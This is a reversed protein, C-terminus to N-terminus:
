TSGGSARTYYPRLWLERVLLLCQGDDIRPYSCASLHGTMATPSTPMPKVIPYDQM